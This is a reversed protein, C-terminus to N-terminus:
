KKRDCDRLCKSFRNMAASRCLRQREKRVRKCRDMEDNYWQECVRKCEENTVVIGVATSASVHGMPLAIVIVASAVLLASIQLLRKRM